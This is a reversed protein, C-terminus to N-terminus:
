FCLHKFAEGSRIEELRWQAWILKRFMSLRDGHRPGQAFESVHRGAEAGIWRKFGYFVPVGMLLASLAAGSHWTVVCSADKLDEALPKRPGTGPHPRVRAGLKQAIDEGWGRPSAIGDEGIGRQGLVVVERGDRWPSLEVGLADWRAASGVKWHGAGSHHGLSLAYWTDGLWDKGLYGNEAVIVRAGAREFRWAEEAFWAYRNWIVLVDEPKPASIAEAIRFGASSLGENFADKRYHLASRLLNLARM